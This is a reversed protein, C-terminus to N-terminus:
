LLVSVTDQGKRITIPTFGIFEGDAQVATTDVSTLIIEHAEILRSGRTTINKKLLMASLWAVYAWRSAYPYFRAHLQKSGCRAEPVPNLGCAYDAINAAVFYGREGSIVTSGDAVITLLAPHHCAFARLTPMLYGRKGIARTRTAAIRQIVEADLGVSVMAFFPRDNALGYSASLIKGAALKRFLESRDDSASFSRAFLSENGAPYMTVPVKSRALSSLLPMLTGDGGVVVFAALGNLMTDVVGADYAPRSEFVRAEYGKSESEAAIAQALAKGNGLGSIPNYLIGLAARM